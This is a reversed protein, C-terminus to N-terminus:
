HVALLMFSNQRWTGLFAEPRGTDKPTPM